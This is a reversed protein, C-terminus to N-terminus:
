VGKCKLEHEKDEESLKNWEEETIGAAILNKLTEAANIETGSETTAGEWKGWQHKSLTFKPTTRNVSIPLKDWPQKKGQIIPLGTIPDTKITNNEAVKIETVEASTENESPIVGPVEKNIADEVNQKEELLLKKESEKLKNYDINLDEIDLIEVNELQPNADKFDKRNAVLQNKVDGTTKVGYETNGGEVGLPKPYSVKIPIVRIEKVKIGYKDELFKKYLSLQRSYKQKNEKSISQSLHTKMDFIYFDGNADYALLDLTGAVNITRVIGSADTVELKGSAVVSRPVVTLGEGIIQNSLVKVQNGFALLQEHTANPYLTSLDVDIFLKGDFIDRIFEDIGTGINSSPVAYPNTKDMRKKADKDAAIISTVRAFVKGTHTDIYSEGDTSLEVTKSDEIIQNIIKGAKENSNNVPPKITGIIVTGTQTDVVAGNALTATNPDASQQFFTNKTGYPDEMLIGDSEYFLRDASVEFVNDDYLDEVIKKAERDSDKKRINDYKINLKVFGEVDSRTRVGNSNENSSDLLLTQIIDFQQQSSMPGNSVQGLSIPTKNKNNSILSLEFIFKGDPNRVFGTTGDENQKVVPTLKYTWGSPLNFHESLNRQLKEEVENITKKGSATFVENNTDVENEIPINKFKESNFIKNIEKAFAKVKSNSNLAAEVDDDKFLQTILKDSNLDETTLLSRGTILINTNGGKLNPISVGIERNAGEREIVQLKSIFLQKLKKYLPHERRQVKNLKNVEQLEKREDDTLEVIPTDQVSKNGVEKNRHNPNFGVVRSLPTSIEKGTKRDKILQGLENININERVGALKYAGTVKDNQTRSMIGVVQYQTTVGDKTIAFKGDPHEIVAILGYNDANYNRGSVLLSKKIKEELIPDTVFMVKTGPKPSSEENNLFEKVNHEKLYDSFITSKNNTNIYKMGLSGIVPGTPDGLLGIKDYGNDEVTEGNDTIGALDFLRSKDYPDNVKNAKMSKTETTKSLERNTTIKTAASRLLDAAAYGIVSDDEIQLKNAKQMLAAVFDEELEFENESLSTLQESALQKVEDSAVESSTNNIVKMTFRANEAVTESSNTKFKTIIPHETEDVKEETKVEAKVEPIVTTEPKIAVRKEASPPANNVATTSTSVVPRKNIEKENEIAKYNGYVDNFTQILEGPEKLQVRQGEELQSNIANLYNGFPTTGDQNKSILAEAVANQDQLNIGKNSLYHLTNIFLDQDNQDLKNYNENEDLGKHIKEVAVKEEQYKQMMPNNKDILVSIAARKESENNSSTIKDLEHAFTTYDAETYDNLYSYKKKLLEKAKKTKVGDVYNNFLVPNEILSKEAALNYNYNKELRARDTVKNQFDQYKEIGKKIVEDIVVQQTSSYTSKNKPNLIIERDVASLNMIDTASLTIDEVERLTTLQKEALNIFKANNSVSLKLDNKDSTLQQKDAASLKKNKLKENIELLSKEDKAHEKKIKELEKSANDISGFNAILMQDKKNLMSNSIDIPNAGIESRVDNFEKDLQTMRQKNDERKLRAFVIAEKVDKDVNIGFVKEVSKVEKEVKTTLDLVEQANKKIDQLAETNSINLTKNMMSNQFLEVSKSEVSNPDELNKENFQTRAQLSAVVADHYGTGKLSALTNVNSILEGFRADRIAKEDGSTTARNSEAVWNISSQTDFFLDQTQKDSFFTNLNAALDERQKNIEVVDKNNFLPSIGSRWEVYSKRKIYDFLKENPKRPENNRTGELINSNVNPGGMFMSLAGYLGAKIAEQSTAKEGLAVLGAHISKTADEEFAETQPTDGYKYDLYQEMDNTAKGQSYASSLEPLYEELGEGGAEKLRNGIAKWKTHKIAKAIVTEPTTGTIAVGARSMNTAGNGGLRNVTRNITRQVSPANLGKQLTANIGGNIVSNVVFDTTMASNAYKEAQALDKDIEAKHKNKYYDIVGPKSKMLQVAEAVNEEPMDENSGRVFGEIDKDIISEYKKDVDETLNKLSNKRTEAANMGGEISAVGGIVGWNGIDIANKAYKSIKAANLAKSGWSTAKAISSIGKVVGSVAASGGMTLLTSAVTFGYQSVLEFPTNATLINREQDTTNIIPNATLGAEELEVQNEPIWSGITAVRDGYRTIPNDIINKLKGEGDEKDYNFVGAAMGVGRIIMGAGSNVFNLGTNGTKEVLSQNDAVINQYFSKVKEQAFAPGGVELWGRYQGALRIRDEETLNLKKSGSYQKYYPSIDSSLNDLNAIENNRTNSDASFLQNTHYEGAKTSLNTLYNMAEDKLTEGRPAVFKNMIANVGRYFLNTVEKVEPEIANNTEDINDAVVKRAYLLDREGRTLKDRNNWVESDGPDQSFAFAKTFLKNKYVNDKDIEDLGELENKYQNEWKERTERSLGQLGRFYSRNEAPDNTIAPDYLSNRKPVPAPVIKTTKDEAM